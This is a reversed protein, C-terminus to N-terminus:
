CSSILRFNYYADFFEGRGRANSDSTTPEALQAAINSSERMYSTSQFREKMSLPPSPTYSQSSDSASELRQQNVTFILEEQLSSKSEAARSAAFQFPDSRPVIHTVAVDPITSLTHLLLEERKSAFRELSADLDEDLATRNKVKSPSPTYGHTDM